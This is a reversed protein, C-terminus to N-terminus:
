KHNQSQFYFIDKQSIFIQPSIKGKLGIVPLPSLNEALTCKIQLLIFLGLYSSEQPQQDMRAKASDFHSQQVKQFHGAQSAASFNTLM